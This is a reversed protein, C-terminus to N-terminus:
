LEPPRPERNIHILHVELAGYAFLGLSLILLLVAWAPPDDARAAAAVRRIDPRLWIGWAVNGVLMLLIARTFSSKLFRKM